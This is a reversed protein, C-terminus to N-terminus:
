ATSPSDALAGVLMKLAATEEEHNPPRRPRKLLEETRLISGLSAVAGAIATALPVDGRADAPQVM